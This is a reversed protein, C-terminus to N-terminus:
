LDIRESQLANYYFTPTKVPAGLVKQIGLTDNNLRDVASDFNNPDLAFGMYWGHGGSLFSEANFRGGRGNAFELSAGSCQQLTMNGVPYSKLGYDAVVIDIYESADVGDIGAAGYMRGYDYVTILADTLGVEDFARRTYLMLRAANEENRAALYPNAVPAKSYEDDFNVGDLKYTKCVEAIQQAFHQCGLDSLQALGAEDHNGLLGVLVKIGKDQLPKIYTEHNDIYFKVKDNHNFFPKGEEDLNINSAFLTVVDWVPTEKEDDLVFAM